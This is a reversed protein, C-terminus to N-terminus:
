EWGPGTLTFVGQEVLQLGLQPMEAGKLDLEYFQRQMNRCPLVM